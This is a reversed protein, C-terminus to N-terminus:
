GCETRASSRSASRTNARHERPCRACARGKAASRKLRAGPEGSLVDTSSLQPPRQLGPGPTAPQQQDSDRRPQRNRPAKARTAAAAAPASRPPAAPIDTPRHRNTRLDLAHHAHPAPSCRRMQNRHRADLLAAPAPNRRRRVSRAPTMPCRCSSAAVQAGSTPAAVDIAVEDGAALGVIQRLKTFPNELYHAWENLGSGEALGPSTSIGKNSSERYRPCIL